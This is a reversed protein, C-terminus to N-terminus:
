EETKTAPLNEIATFSVDFGTQQNDYKRYDKGTPGYIGYDDSKLVKASFKIKQGEQLNIVKDYIPNDPYIGKTGQKNSQAQALALSYNDEGDDYKITGGDIILILIKKSKDDGGAIIGNADCAMVSVVTGTWDTLTNKNEKLFDKTMQETKEKFMTTAASNTPKIVSSYFFDSKKKIFDQQISNTFEKPATTQETKDTTKDSSNGCSTFTLLGFITMGYLIATTFITKNKTM